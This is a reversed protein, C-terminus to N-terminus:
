VAYSIINEQNIDNKGLIGVIKGDRMVAVRDSMNIIEPLESSIMIISVGTKALNNMINYIEAKSGVDIGRTPEDLILLNPNLALYKAIVIKQQNGGSLNYVLQEISTTRISLKEISEQTFIEEEKRNWKIFRIFRELISITINFRVTNVLVLGQEKRNEPILAIGFKLSDIPKHNLPVQKGNIWIEGSDVRDIGFLARALETRGSGVMGSIGLIEGRYVELNIDDFIGKSSLHSVKFCIEKQPISDKVYFQDLTRGVMLKILEERTVNATVRTGVYKGDRLVTVRDSIQFLEDIRHSIYIISTGKKKLEDIADFLREVETETLSSTPEDMVLIESNLAIAKAIEILQQQALSYSSVISDAEIEIGLSDLLKQAEMNMFNDNMFGLKGSIEHGLFINKAVSIYPVLSLEQHIAAINYKQADKVNNIKVKKGKIYIDGEDISYIGTLIKILTTKGAGNEGLIAHIEGHRLEFDVGDLAQVGPFYKKINKMELILEESM